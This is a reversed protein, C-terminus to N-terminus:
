SQRSRQGPSNRITAVSICAAAAHRAAPDNVPITGCGAQAQIAHTEFRKGNDIHWIHIPEDVAIDAAELPDEDIACSGEYHLECHTVAVRHIKSKLLTRFM